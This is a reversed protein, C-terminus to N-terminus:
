DRFEQNGKDGEEGFFGDKSRMGNSHNSGGFFDGQNNHSSVYNNNINSNNHNNEEDQSFAFSSM